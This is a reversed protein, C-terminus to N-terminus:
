AQRKAALQDQSYWISRNVTFGERGAGCGVVARAQETTMGDPVLLVRVGGPQPHVEPRGDRTLEGTIVIESIGERPRSKELEVLVRAAARSEPSGIPFDAPKPGCFTDLLSRKAGKNEFM